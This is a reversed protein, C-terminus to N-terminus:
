CPRPFTPPANRLLFDDPLIAPVDQFGAEPRRLGVAGHSVEVLSPHRTGLDGPRNDQRVAPDNGHAGTPREEFVLVAPHRAEDDREAAELLELPDHLLPAGARRETFDDPLRRAQHLDEVQDLRHAVGVGGNQDEPLAPGPLPKEGPGDVVQRRAAVLREDLEVAGGQGFRKELRLQEPVHAAGEGAGHGVLDPAELRGGPPGDEEVLYPFDGRRQLYLQEVDQLVVLELLDAAAAIELGVHAHDRRRVPVQSGRHLLPTEPFVQEVPQVDDGDLDRGKAFPLLVDGKEDVM